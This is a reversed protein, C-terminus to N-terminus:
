GVLRDTCGRLRESACAAAAVAGAAVTLEDESVTVGGGASLGVGAAVALGDAASTLGGAAAAM